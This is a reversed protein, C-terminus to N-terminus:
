GVHYAFTRIDIDKRFRRQKAKAELAQVQNRLQQYRKKHKWKPKPAIPERSDPLGGLQLRLKAAALRKRSQKYERQCLYIAKTCHRCSWIGHKAFLRVVSRGCQNCSLLPRPRGFGTNIWRVKFLQTLQSVRDVIEICTASLRLRAIQPYKLGFTDLQEIIENAHRPLVHRLEHIDVCPTLEVIPRTSRGRKPRTARALQWPM